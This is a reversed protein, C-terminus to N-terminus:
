FLIVRPHTFCGWLVRPAVRVLEGGKEAKKNLTFFELNRTRKKLYVLAKFVLTFWCGLGFWMQLHAQFQLATM